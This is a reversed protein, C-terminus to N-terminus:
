VPRIGAAPVWVCRVHSILIARYPLFAPLLTFRAICSRLFPVNRLPREPWFTLLLFCAIAMPSDSARREPAFTGRLFFDLRFFFYGREVGLTGMLDQRFHPVPLKVRRRSRDDQLRLVPGIMSRDVYQGEPSVDEMSVLRVSDL